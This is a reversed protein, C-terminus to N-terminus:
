FVHVQLLSEQERIWVVIMREQEYQVIKKVIQYMM